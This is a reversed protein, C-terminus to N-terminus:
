PAAASPVPEEDAERRAAEEPGESIADKLRKGRSIAEVADFIARLEEEPFGIPHFSRYTEDGTRFDRDPDPTTYWTRQVYVSSSPELAGADAILQVASYPGYCVVGAEDEYGRDAADARSASEETVVEYTIRVRREFGDM